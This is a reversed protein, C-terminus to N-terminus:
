RYSARLPAGLKKSEILENLGDLTEWDADDLALGSGYLAGFAAKFEAPSTEVIPAGFHSPVIRDFRWEGSAVDDVWAKTLEPARVDGFARLIPARLLRGRIREYGPWGGAGDQRLPLFVAQLVSAPWFDAAAVADAGFYTELIPPATPPVFVM